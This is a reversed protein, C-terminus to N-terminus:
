YEFVEDSHVKFHTAELMMEDHNQMGHVMRRPQVNYKLMERLILRLPGGDGTVLGYLYAPRSTFDYNFEPGSNLSERLKDLEVNLEQFSFGGFKRIM